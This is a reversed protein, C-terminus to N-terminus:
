PALTYGQPAFRLPLGGEANFDAVTIPLPNPARISALEAASIYLLRQSIGFQTYDPLADNLTSFFFNGAEQYRSPLLRMLAVARLNQVLMIGNLEITAAIVGNTSKLTFNWQNNDLVISFQQNAVTKLPILKM